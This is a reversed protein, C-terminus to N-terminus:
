AMRHAHHVYFDFFHGASAPGSSPLLPTRPGTWRDNIGLGPRQNRVFKAISIERRAAGGGMSFIKCARNSSKWPRFTPRPGDQPRHTWPTMRSVTDPAAPRM